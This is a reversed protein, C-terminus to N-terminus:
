TFMARLQSLVGPNPCDQPTPSPCRLLGLCSCPREVCGEGTPVPTSERGWAGMRVTLLSEAQKLKHIQGLLDGLNMFGKDMLCFVQDECVEGHYLDCEQICRFQPHLVGVYYRVIAISVFGCGCASFPCQGGAGRVCAGWSELAEADRHAPEEWQPHACTPCQCPSM